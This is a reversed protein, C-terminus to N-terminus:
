GSEKARALALEADRRLFSPLVSTALARELHETAIAHEGRALALLGMIREAQGALSERAGEVDLEAWAAEAVARAGEVDGNALLIDALNFRARLTEVRTPGREDTYREVVRRQHALAPALRGARMLVIALNHEASIALPSPVTSLTALAAEYTAISEAFRGEESYITALTVQASAVAPHDAGLQRALTDVAAVLHPEADAYRELGLLAAGLNQRSTATSPHSPGLVRLQIELAAEQHALAEDYRGMAISTSGAASHAAALFPHSPGLSREFLDIAALQAALAPETRGAVYLATGWNALLQGNAAPDVGGRAIRASAHRYWQQAAALDARDAGFIGVLSAAARVGIEDLGLRESSWYAASLAAIALDADGLESLALGELWRAEAVTPEDGLEGREVVLVRAAALADAFRGLDYATRADDLAIRASMDVIADDPEGCRSPPPLNAIARTARAVVMADASEFMRLTADLRARSRVLCAVEDDRTKAACSMTRAATWASAWDQVMPEVRGLADDVVDRDAGSEAFAAAVRRWRSENWVGSRELEDGGCAADGPALAWVIAAGIVAVVLAPMGRPRRPQLEALLAPMGRHRRAPDEALGREIAHRWRRPLDSSVEHASTPREGVLAEHLAVCFGYQDAAADSPRGDVLEPAAYAPTGVPVGASLLAALGFDVLHPVGQRDVIVNSPKVDRHWVGQAHAAALGRGIAAFVRMIEARSRPRELWTRLSCGALRQMVIGVHEADAVVDYVEVVNPHSVAALARAERVVQTRTRGAGIAIVKIAVTRGLREDRASYVTGNAGAGIREGVVYRGLTIPVAVGALRERVRALLRRAEFDVQPGFAAALLESAPSDGTM